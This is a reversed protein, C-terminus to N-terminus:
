IETKCLSVGNTDGTDDNLFWWCSCASISLSKSAGGPCRHLLPGYHYPLPAAAGQCLPVPNWLCRQGQKQFSVPFQPIFSFTQLTKLSKNFRTARFRKGCHATMSSAQSSLQSVLPLLADLALRPIPHDLRCTEWQLQFCAVSINERNCWHPGECLYHPSHLKKAGWGGVERGWCPWCCHCSCAPAACWSCGPTSCPAATSAPIVVERSGLKRALHCHRPVAGDPCKHGRVQQSCLQHHANSCM